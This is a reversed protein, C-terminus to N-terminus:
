PKETPRPAPAIAALKVEAALARAQWQRVAAELSQIYEEQINERVRCAGLEAFIRVQDAQPKRPLDARVGPPTKQAPPAPQEAPPQQSWALGAGMIMVLIIRRM